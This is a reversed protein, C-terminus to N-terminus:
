GLNICETPVFTTETRSYVKGRVTDMMFLVKISSLQPCGKHLETFVKVGDETEYHGIRLRTWAMGEEKTMQLEVELKCKLTQINRCHKAILLLEKNFLGLAPAGMRVSMHNVNTLIEYSTTGLLTSLTKLKRLTNQHRQLCYYVGVCDNTVSSAPKVVLTCLKRSLFHALFSGTSNHLGLLRLKQLQACSAALPVLNMQTNNDIGHLTLSDLRPLIKKLAAIEQNNDTPIIVDLTRLNSLKELAVLLELTPVTDVKVKTLTLANMHDLLTFTHFSLGPATTVTTM